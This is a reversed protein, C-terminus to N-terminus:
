YYNWYVQSYMNNYSQQSWWYSADLCCAHMHSCLNIIYWGCQSRTLICHLINQHSLYSSVGVQKMLEGEAESSRDGMLSEEERIPHPHPTINSQSLLISMLWYITLLSTSGFHPVESIAMIAPTVALQDQKLHNTWTTALVLNGQFTQNDLTIVFCLCYRTCTCIVM